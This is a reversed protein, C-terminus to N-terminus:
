SPPSPPWGNRRGVATTVSSGASRTHLCCAPCSSPRWSFRSGPASVLLWVGGVLAVPGHTIAGPLISESWAQALAADRTLASLLDGTRSADHQSLPARLYLSVLRRRLGVLATVGLQRLTVGAFYFCVARAALAVVLWVATARSTTPLEAVAQSLLVPLVLTAVGALGAWVVGFALSRRNPLLRIVRSRNEM